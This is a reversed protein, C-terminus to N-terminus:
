RCRVTFRKTKQFKRRAGKGAARMGMYERRAKAKKAKCTRPKVHPFQPLVRKKLKVNLRRALAIKRPISRGKPRVVSRTIHPKKRTPFKTKGIRIPRGRLNRTKARKIREYGTLKKVM